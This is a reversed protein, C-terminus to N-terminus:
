SWSTGLALGLGVALLGAVIHAAWSGAAAAFRGSLADRATSVSVTSFTTLAGAVGTLWVELAVGSLTGAAIGAVLSGVTNAVLIGRSPLYHDALLRLVAGCAGALALWVVIM